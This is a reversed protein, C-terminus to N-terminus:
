CPISNAVAKSGKAVECCSSAQGHIGHRKPRCVINIGRDELSVLPEEVENSVIERLEKAQLLRLTTKMKM